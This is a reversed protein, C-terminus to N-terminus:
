PHLFCHAPNYKCGSAMRAAPEIVGLRASAIVTVVGDPIWFASVFVAQKLVNLDGTAANPAAPRITAAPPPYAPARRWIIAAVAIIAAIPVTRVVAAM